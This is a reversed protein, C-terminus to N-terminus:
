KGEALKRLTDENLNSLDVDNRKETIREVRETFANLHKGLLELSRNAGNSDFDKTTVMTGLNADYKCIDANGRCKEAVDLLGELVYELTVGVKREARDMAAKLRREVAARVKPRGLIESAIVGLSKDHGKSGMRKLTRVGNQDKLYEAVFVAEHPTLGEADRRKAM